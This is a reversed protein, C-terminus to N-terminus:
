IWNCCPLLLITLLSKVYYTRYPILWEIDLTASGYVVEYTALCVELQVTQISGDLASGSVFYNEKGGTSFANM